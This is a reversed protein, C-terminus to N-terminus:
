HYNRLFERQILDVTFTELTRLHERLSLVHQM